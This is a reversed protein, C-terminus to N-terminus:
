HSIIGPSPIPYLNASRTFINNVQMLLVATSYFPVSSIYKVVRDGAVPQCHHAAQRVLHIDQGDM